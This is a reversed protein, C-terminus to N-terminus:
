YDLKTTFVQLNKSFLKCVFYAYKFAFATTSAQLLISDWALIYIRINGQSVSSSVIFKFSNFHLTKIITYSLHEFTSM